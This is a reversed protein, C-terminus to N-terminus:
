GGFEAPSPIIDKLMIKPIKETKQLIKEIRREVIHGKIMWYFPRHNGVVPFKEYAVDIPHFYFITTGRQLSQMLGRYIIHEGLFRLMPGGSAPIKIGMDYYAFPYETIDRVGESPELSTKKPFYPSSGVGQLLSDTKNYLSNVSVSSDYRFGMKELIDIMWGAVLANPSRYGIVEKGAIRELINKATKTENYFIEKDKLPTKNKPDIVCEHHLGHCAIEHGAKAISEILGPYHEVLDAVVFFTAKVNYKDLLNLIRNTPESLYDYKGDWKKFFEDVNKYTSFPSGCVSPIHYWDEMDITIALQHQTKGIM